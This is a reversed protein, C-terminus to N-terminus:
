ASLNKKFIKKINSEFSLRSINRIIKKHGALAIKLRKKNNNLIKNIIKVCDNDNKFFIAEKNGKFIECHTKTKKALLLTGIYPIELSKNTIDDDNAKSPLCISLKASQTLKVYLDDTTIKKGFYNRYKKYYKFKNWHDGYIKIDFNNQILKRVLDGREPFWTGIMVIDIKYKNLEFNRLRRKKQYEIKFTPPIWTTNTLNLRKAYKFRNKQMFIILDFLKLNNIILNWRQNDRNVFPNDPCYFFIKKSRLKLFKITKEGILNENHIYILDFNHKLKSKILLYIILDFIKPNFYWSIKKIFKIFISLKTFDILKVNSYIKKLISYQYFSYGHKNSDGIYLIKM